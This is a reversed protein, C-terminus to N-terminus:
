GRGTIKVPQGQENLEVRLLTEGSLKISRALDRPRVCIAKKLVGTKRLTEVSRGYSASYVGPKGKIQFIWGTKM